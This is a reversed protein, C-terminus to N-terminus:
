KVWTFVHPIEPSTSAGFISRATRPISYELSTVQRQDPERSLATGDATYILSNSGRKNELADMVDM